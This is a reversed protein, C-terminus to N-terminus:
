QMRQRSIIKSTAVINQQWKGQEKDQCLKSFDRCEKQEEIKVPDRCLKLIDRCGERGEEYKIDRYLQSNDLCKAVISKPLKCARQQSPSIIITVFKEQNDQVKTAVNKMFTTVNKM